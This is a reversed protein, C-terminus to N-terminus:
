VSLIEFDVQVHVSLDRTPTIDFGMDVPEPTSRGRRPGTPAQMPAAYVLDIDVHHSPMSWSDSANSVAMVRMGAAEAIADAKRRAARMAEAAAPITAEFEHFVWELRDLTTDPQDAVATIVAGVQDPTVTVTLRYTARQTRLVKGGSTTINMGQLQVADDDVGLDKLAKVLGRVQASKKVAADGSVVSAGAVAVHLRVSEARVTTTEDATVRLTGM